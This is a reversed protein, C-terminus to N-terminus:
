FKGVFVFLYDIEIVDLDPFRLETTAIAQVHLKGIHRGIHCGVCINIYMYM